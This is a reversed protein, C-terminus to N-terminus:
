TTGNRPVAEAKGSSGFVRIKEKVVQKMELEGQGLSTALAFENPNEAFVKQVGRTFAQRLETDVNM